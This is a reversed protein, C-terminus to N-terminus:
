ASRCDYGCRALTAVAGFIYVVGARGVGWGGTGWVIVVASANQWMSCSRSCAFM